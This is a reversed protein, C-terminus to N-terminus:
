IVQMAGPVGHPFAIAHHQHFAIHVDDACIRRSHRLHDGTAACRKGRLLHLRHAPEGISDHDIEIRIAGARVGRLFGDLEQQVLAHM